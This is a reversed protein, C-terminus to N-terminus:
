SRDAAALHIWGRHGQGTWLRTSDAPRATGAAGVDSRAPWGIMATSSLRTVDYGPETPWSERAVFWERTCGEFAVGVRLNDPAYLIAVTEICWIYHFSQAVRLGSIM